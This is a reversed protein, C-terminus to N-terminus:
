LSGLLQLFEKHFYEVLKAEVDQISLAGPPTFARTNFKHCPDSIVRHALDRESRSMFKLLFEKYNVNGDSTTVSCREILRNCEHRTMKFDYENMVNHFDMKSVVGVGTHDFHEFGMRLAHFNFEM